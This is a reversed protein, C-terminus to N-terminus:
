HFGNKRNSIDLQLLEYVGKDAGTGTFLTMLLGPRVSMWYAPTLNAPTPVNYTHAYSLEYHLEALHPCGNVLMSLTEYTHEFSQDLVLTRLHVGHASIISLNKASVVSGSIVLTTLNRIAGPSFTLPTWDCLYLRRLQKCRELLTIVVAAEFPPRRPKGRNLSLTYLSNACHIYIHELSADTIRYVDMINLSRLGKLNQVVALVGADTVDEADSIDLHVIPSCIKTFSSLTEDTIGGTTVFKLVRLLPCARAILLLTAPAMRCQSLDLRVINGLEILDVINESDIKFKKVALTSLHPLVIDKFSPFCVVGYENSITLCEIHPNNELIVRLATIDKQYCTVNFDTLNRCHEKVQEIQISSYRVLTM